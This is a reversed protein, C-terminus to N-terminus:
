NPLKVNMIKIYIGFKQAVLLKPALETTSMRVFDKATLSQSGPQSEEEFIPAGVEQSRRRKEGINLDRRLDENGRLNFLLSRAKRYYKSSCENNCFEFLEMEIAVSLPRPLSSKMVLTNIM